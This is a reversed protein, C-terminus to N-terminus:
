RRTGSRWRSSPVALELSVSDPLPHVMDAPLATLESLGGGPGALGHFAILRCINPM